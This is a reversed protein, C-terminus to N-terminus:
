ETIRIVIMTRDDDPPRGASFEEVAALATDLLANARLSCNELVQDLRATGFLEGQPNQAETIGDTYLVLEDAPQLQYVSEEYKIERTIGLPMGSASNLVLLSGDQCRKLRPPNHGANAATLTRTNPDYVGYFATIFTDSLRGYHRDLHENLYDLVRGPPMPPGPHMHAICHTVAMLVAAPTGHGSVDAIFIGWKGDPLPFFDYYDGGARQAPQYHSAVDAGRIKPLEVPLLARQIDGVVRFERDLAIYARQLEEKLVLNSTARGFLNTRWVVDPIQDKDFANPERQMVIVMNLSEGQDFMPIALLSRCGDLYEWAPDDPDPTFDDFVRPEEAYILEAFLGGELLPLRDKELWPNVERDWTTSRTVRVFPDRLGRRSLSVRREITLLQQMRRGYARVMEQPDNQASMERMTDIIISLRDQWTQPVSEVSKM